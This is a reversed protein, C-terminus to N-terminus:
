CNTDSEEQCHKSWVYDVQVEAISHKNTRQNTNHLAM